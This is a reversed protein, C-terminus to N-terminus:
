GALSISSVTLSYAKTSPAMRSTTAAATAAAWWPGLMIATFATGIMDIFIEKIRFYLAVQGGAV